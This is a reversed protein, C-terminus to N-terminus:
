EDDNEAVVVDGGWDNKIVTKKIIKVVTKKIM